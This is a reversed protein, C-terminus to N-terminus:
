APLIVRVTVAPGGAPSNAHLGRVVAEMEARRRQLHENVEGALPRLDVFIDAQGCAGCTYYRFRVGRLGAAQREAEMGDTEARALDGPGFECGCEGCSHFM